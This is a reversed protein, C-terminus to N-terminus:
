IIQGQAVFRQLHFQISCQFPEPAPPPEIENENLIKKDLKFYFNFLLFLLIFLVKQNIKIQNQVQHENKKM